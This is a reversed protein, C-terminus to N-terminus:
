ARRGTIKKLAAVLNDLQEATTLESFTKVTLEM